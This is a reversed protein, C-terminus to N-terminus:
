KHCIVWGSAPYPDWWNDWWNYGVEKYVAPGGGDHHQQYYGSWLSSSFPFGWPTSSIYWNSDSTSFDVRFEVYHHWGKADYYLGKATGSYCQTQASATPAFQPLAALGGALVGFVLVSM